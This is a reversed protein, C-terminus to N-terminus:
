LFDFFHSNHNSVDRDTSVFFLNDRLPPLVSIIIKLIFIFLMLVLMKKIEPYTTLLNM